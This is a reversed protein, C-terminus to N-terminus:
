FGESLLNDNGNTIKKNFSWKYGYAFHTRGSCVAGINGGSKAGFSQAAELACGWKKILVGKADYQYVPKSNPNLGLKKTRSLTILHDMNKLGIKHAHVHNQKNTCWELNSVHNNKKNGDIHNITLSHDKCPLFAIAVLRHVKIKKNVPAKKLPVYQYGYRDIHKALLYPTKHKGGFRPLSKVNGFNSVEYYGEFGAIPLWLEQASNSVNPM